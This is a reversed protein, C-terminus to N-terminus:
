PDARAPANGGGGEAIGGPDHHQSGRLLTVWCMGVPYASGHVGDCQRDMESIPVSLRLLLVLHSGGLTRLCLLGELIRVWSQRGM